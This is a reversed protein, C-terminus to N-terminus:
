LSYYYLIWMTSRDRGKLHPTASGKSIHGEGYMTGLQIQKIKVEFPTPVLIQHRQHGVGQVPLMGEGM